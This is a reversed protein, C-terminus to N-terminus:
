GVKYVQKIIKNAERHCISNSRFEKEFFYFFAKNYTPIELYIFKGSKHFYHSTPKITQGVM